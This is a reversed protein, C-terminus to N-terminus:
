IEAMHPASWRPGIEVFIPLTSPARIYHNKRIKTEINKPTESRCPTLIEITGNVNSTM